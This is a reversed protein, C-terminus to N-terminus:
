CKSATIFDFYKFIGLYAVSYISGLVLLAKRLKLNEIKDIFLGLGYSIITTLMLFPLYEIGWLAYYAYSIILLWIWQKKGAFMSYYAFFCVCFFVIFEATQFQM